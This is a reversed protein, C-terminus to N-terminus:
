YSNINMVNNYPETYLKLFSQKSIYSLYPNGGKTCRYGSPCCHEGDSCCTADPLPCCGWQGSRLMCCTNGSPCQAQSGPCHVNQKGIGTTSQSETPELKTM